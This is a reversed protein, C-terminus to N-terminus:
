SLADKCPKGDNWVVKKRCNTPLHYCLRLLYSHAVAERYNNNKIVDVSILESWLSNKLEIKITVFAMFECTPKLTRRRSERWWILLNGQFYNLNNLRNKNIMSNRLIPFFIPRMLRIVEQSWMEVLYRKSSKFYWHNLQNISRINVETMPSWVNIKCQTNEPLFLVPFRAYTENKHLLGYKSDLM